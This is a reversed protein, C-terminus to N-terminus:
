ICDKKLDVNNLSETIEMLSDKLSFLDKDQIGVGCAIKNPISLAKNKLEKGTTTLTVILIREDQKSRSRSVLNMNELKKLLPTLTGSDLYLKEGLEKASISEHEWLVLMTIYQTYTLNLEELYPRYLKIIERSCAYVAFCLQNDLKLVDNESM